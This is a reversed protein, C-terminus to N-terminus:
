PHEEPLPARVAVRGTLRPKSIGERAFNGRGETLSLYNPGPGPPEGPEFITTPDDEWACVPCTRYHGYNPLTLFGCCRCMVRTGLPTEHEPLRDAAEIMWRPSVGQRVGFLDRVAAHVWHGKGVGDSREVRVVWWDGEFDYEGVLRRGDPLTVGSM